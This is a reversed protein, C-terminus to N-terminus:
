WPLLGSLKKLLAILNSTGPDPNVELRVFYNLHERSSKLGLLATDTLQVSPSLMSAESPFLNHTFFTAREGIGLRGSRQSNDPIHVLRRHDRRLETKRLQV